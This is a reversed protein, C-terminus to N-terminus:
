GYICVLLYVQKGPLFELCALEANTLCLNLFNNVRLVGDHYM